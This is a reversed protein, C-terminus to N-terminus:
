WLPRGSLAVALLAGMVALWLTGAVVILRVARVADLARDVLWGVIPLAQLGHLGVFHAIRLDGRDTAWNVFPWGPGGDPGPVSHAENAVIMWGQLSGMIFLVVGLRVGWLYGARGAPTDRRLIWLFVAIAVTNITIAVGMIAFVLADFPTANNFHSTTGRISQMTICVMEIVMMAVTTRRVFARAGPQPRTEAMFWGISSLFIALSVYFKTPKIWPSIGLIRRDDLPILAVCVVAACAMLTSSWFLLPERRRLEAIV